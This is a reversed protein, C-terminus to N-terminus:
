SDDGDTHASARRARKRMTRRGAEAVALVERMAEETTAREFLTTATSHREAASVVSPAPDDGHRLLLEGLEAIAAFTRAKGAEFREREIRRDRLRRTLWAGLPAGGIVMASGGIMWPALEIILQRLTTPQPRSFAKDAVLESARLLVSGIRDNMILGQRFTAQQFRGYAYNRASTLATEHRGTVELWDGHAVLVVDDPFHRALAPAYDILVKGPEVPPFAVVRVTFGTKEKLLEHPLDIRDRRGPANVVRDRRLREVLEATQSATPEVVETTPRPSQSSRSAADADKAHRVIDLLAETVDYQATHRRLSPLDDPVATVGKSSSVLLGEIRILTLGSEEAWNRLPLYIRKHYDDGDSYNGDEGYRGSFPAVLIRMDDTLESAILDEDFTAVAGPARYIQRTALAEVATEVDLPPPGDGLGQARASGSPAHLGLFLLAALVAGLM